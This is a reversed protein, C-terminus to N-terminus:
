STKMSKLSQIQSTLEEKEAAWSKAKDNTDKETKIQYKLLASQSKEKM